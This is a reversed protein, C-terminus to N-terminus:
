QDEEDKDGSTAQLFLNIFEDLGGHQQQDVNTNSVVQNQDDAGHEPGATSSSLAANVNVVRRCHPM